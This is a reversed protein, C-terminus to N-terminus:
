APLEEPVAQGRAAFDPERNWVENMVTNLDVALTVRGTAPDHGEVFVTPM